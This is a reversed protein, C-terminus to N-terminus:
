RGEEFGKRVTEFANSKRMLERIERDEKIFNWEESTINNIFKKQVEKKEQYRHLEEEYQHLLKLKKKKSTFSGIHIEKPKEIEKQWQRNLAYGKMTVKPNSKVYNAADQNPFDPKDVFLLIDEKDYGYSLMLDVIEKDFKDILCYKWLKYDKGNIIYQGHYFLNFGASFLLELIRKDRTCYARGVVGWMYNNEDICFIFQFCFINFKNSVLFKVTDYDILFEYLARQFTNEDINWLRDGQEILKNAKKFNKRILADLLDNVIAKDEWKYPFEFSKNKDTNM